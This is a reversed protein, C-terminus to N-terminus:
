RRAAEAALAAIIPGNAPPFTRGPLDAAPVWRFGTEPAPEAAPDAPEADFYHLEVRGHPYDYTRALREPGILVDLGTEEHSERRAAAAPSEDPECKGGPFEWVGPMPSGAMPPRTRILFAAGRRILAIGVRTM